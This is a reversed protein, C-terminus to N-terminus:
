SQQASQNLRERLKKNEEQATALEVKTKELERRTDELAEITAEDIEGVGVAVGQYYPILKVKLLFNSL